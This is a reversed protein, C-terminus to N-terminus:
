SWDVDTTAARPSIADTTLPPSEFARRVALARLRLHYGLEIRLPKM